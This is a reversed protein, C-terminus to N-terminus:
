QGGGFYEDRLKELTVVQEALSRVTAADRSSGIARALEWRTADILAGADAGAADLDAITPLQGPLLANV